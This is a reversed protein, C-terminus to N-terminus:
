KVKTKEKVKEGDETGKKKLVMGDSTILAKMKDDGREMKLEYAERDKDNEKNVSTVTYGNFDRKLTNNVAAPLNSYDSVVSTSGIWNGDQDYWTYYDAGNWDYTVVYDNADVAPWGAWEWDIGTYPESYYNWTVDTAGPYKTEFTTKTKAPVEIPKSAVTTTNNTSTNTASASATSDNVTEKTTSNEGCSSAIIIIGAFFIWSKLKM